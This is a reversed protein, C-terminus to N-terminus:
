ISGLVAEGTNIPLWWAASGVGQGTCVWLTFTSSVATNSMTAILEGPAGSRPLDVGSGNICRISVRANNIVVGGPYDGNFNITLSDGESHVLARRHGKNGNRRPASDLMLDAGNVKLVAAQVEIWNGNGQDLVIDTSM